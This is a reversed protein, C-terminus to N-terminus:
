KNAQQPEKPPFIPDAQNNVAVNLINILEEVKMMGLVENDRTRINVTHNEQEKGGVVLVYNFFGDLRVNMMKKKLQKDSLDIEVHFGADFLEQKVQNAYESCKLSIPIVLLQRPNVWFPWEGATHEILIAMFRELSGYIARHIMVPRQNGSEESVYNLDFREPLNFDLQITACQHSRKLADTIHIDIKPGYFAGDGPNLKWEHGCQQLITELQKEAMDWVEVDGIFKEPRTSLEMAFTFGFIGYVHNMFDICSLIEEQVQERTCFIHADDQQFRRVRTMGTLAGSLENRHLVGFDAYRLPLERYSRVRHGFMVCHGPCNMPKLAFELGEVEFSFMNEAYNQYHGSRKWLDVNYINPSVVEEFGRKRYESRLFEQLKNYIRTGYPLMFASGPTLPDMFFLEQKKGIKRHDRREAEAQEKQWAQLLKKDPFAIGYVRQLSANDANGMWYASSNKLIEFAKARGTHPIHPGRCLDILDGCRYATILDGDPVKTTIIELKFKNYTFLKLAEEKTLELREFTQKQKVIQNVIKKLEPYDDSSVMSEGMEMDYYFGGTDLPPGVCLNGAYKKELAEGLIHASSHWFVHQGEETNFSFLELTCDEELKRPLDWLVGNVKAVVVNQALSNSIKKAIDMSSDKGAVADLVKGDPLTVKIPKEEIVVAKAERLEDWFKCREEIYSM